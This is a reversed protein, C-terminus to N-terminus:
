FLPSIGHLFIAPKNSICARELLGENGQDPLARKNVVSSLPAERRASVVEEPLTKRACWIALYRPM